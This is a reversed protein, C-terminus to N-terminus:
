KSLIMFPYFEKPRSRKNEGIESGTIIAMGFVNILAVPFFYYLGAKM